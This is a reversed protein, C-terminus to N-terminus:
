LYLLQNQFFSLQNNHRLGKPDTNPGFNKPQYKVLQSYSEDTEKELIAKGVKLGLHNGDSLRFAAVKIIKPETKTQVLKKPFHRDRELRWSIVLKTKTLVTTTCNNIM